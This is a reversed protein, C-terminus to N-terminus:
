AYERKFQPMLEREFFDFFGDQEPGVQHLCIHTFGAKIYEKIAALHVEPDPGCIVSKAIEDESVIESAEEFFQPLALEVSLPGKLGGQRWYKLATKRAQAETKAWCLTMQGIRPKGKGGSNIFTDVGEKGPKTNIFGDGIEGALESAEEGKAAIYIEPLHEPLTYLRANEITYYNGEFSQLGGQWLKRIVVVAEDLMKLRTNFAPWKGGLVHENLNEGTGLGLFFRNPMMDAVTAAAQAIIAPHIRIIPCTVGTGIRITSTTAAIGGLVSWVFPCHGQADLWPHFHDSIMAITCGMAEARQAQKILTNASHEESSLSYGLEIAHHNM